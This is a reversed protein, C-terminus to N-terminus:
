HRCRSPPPPSARQRRPGCRRPRRRGRPRRRRSSNPWPAQRNRRSFPSSPARGSAGGLVTESGLLLLFAGIARGTDLRMSEWIGIVDLGLSWCGAALGLLTGLCSLSASAGRDPPDTRLLLNFLLLVPLVLAVPVMAFSQTPLLERFRGEGGLLRAWLYAILSNTVLLLPMGLVAWGLIFAPTRGLQMINLVLAPTTDADAPPFPAALDVLSSALAIGVALAVALDWPCERAIREMTESPSTIVGTFAARLPLDPPEATAGTEGEPM